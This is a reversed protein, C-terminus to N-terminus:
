HQLHKLVSVNCILSLNQCVILENMNWTFKASFFINLRSFMQRKEGKGCRIGDGIIHNLLTFSIFVMQM